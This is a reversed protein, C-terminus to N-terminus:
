ATLPMHFGGPASYVAELVDKKRVIMSFESLVEIADGKTRCVTMEGAGRRYLDEAKEIAESLETSPRGGYISAAVQEETIQMIGTKM